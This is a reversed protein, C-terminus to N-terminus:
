RVFLLYSPGHGKIWTTTEANVEVGDCNAVSSVTVGRKDIAEIRSMESCGEENFRTQWATGVQIPEGLVKTGDSFLAGDRYEYVSASSLRGVWGPTRLTSFSDGWRTAALAEWLHDEVVVATDGIRWVRAARVLTKENGTITHIYNGTEPLYDRALTTKCGCAWALPMLLTVRSLSM